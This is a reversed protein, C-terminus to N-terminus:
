CNRLVIGTSFAVFRRLLGLAEFLLMRRLQLEIIEQALRKLCNPLFLINARKSWCSLCRKSRSAVLLLIMLARFTSLVRFAALVVVEYLSSLRHIM